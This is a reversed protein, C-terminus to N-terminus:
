YTLLLYASVQFHKATLGYKKHKIGLNTLIKELEEPKDLHDITLGLAAGVKSAHSM